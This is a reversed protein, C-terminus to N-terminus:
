GPEIRTVISFEPASLTSTVAVETASTISRNIMSFTSPPPVAEAVSMVPPTAVAVIEQAAPVIGAVTLKPINHLSSAAPPLWISLLPSPVSPRPLM